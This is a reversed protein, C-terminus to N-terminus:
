KRLRLDLNVKKVLFDLLEQCAQVETEDRHDLIEKQELYALNDLYDRYDM